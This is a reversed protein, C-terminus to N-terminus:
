CRHSLVRSSYSLIFPAVLWLSLGESLGGKKQPVCAMWGERANVVVAFRVSFFRFVMKGDLMSHHVIHFLKTGSGSRETVGSTRACFTCSNCSVERHRHQHHASVNVPVYENICEGGAYQTCIYYVCTCSLVNRPGTRPREQRHRRRAM